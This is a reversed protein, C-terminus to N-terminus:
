RKAAYTTGEIKVQEISGYTGADLQTGTWETVCMTGSVRVSNDSVLQEPLGYDALKKGEGKKGTGLHRQSDVMLMLSPIGRYTEDRIYTSNM